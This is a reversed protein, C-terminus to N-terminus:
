SAHAKTEKYIMNRQRASENHGKDQVKEFVIQSTRNMKLQHMENRCILRACEKSAKEHLKSNQIQGYTKCRFDNTLWDYVKSGTKFDLRAGKVLQKDQVKQAHNAQVETKCKSKRQAVNQVRIINVVLRADKDQEQHEKRM